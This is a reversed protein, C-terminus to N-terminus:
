NRKVKRKIWNVFFYERLYLYDRELLTTFDIFSHFIMGIFVYMFFPFFIGLIGILAHFEITHFFHFDGKKRKGKQKDKVQQIGKLRHYELSEKLSLFKKSKIISALYHDFDILFSSLFVVMLFYWPTNKDIIWILFTFVAGLIIHSRPLM